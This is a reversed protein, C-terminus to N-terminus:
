REWISLVHVQLGCRSHLFPSCFECIGAAASGLCLIYALTNCVLMPLGVAKPNFYRSVYFLVLFLTDIVIFAISVRQALYPNNTEALYEPSPPQGAGSSSM